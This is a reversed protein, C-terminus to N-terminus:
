DETQRKFTYITQFIILYSLFQSIFRLDAPLSNELRFRRMFAEYKLSHLLIITEINNRTLYALRAEM